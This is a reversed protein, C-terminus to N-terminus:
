VTLDKSEVIEQYVPNTETEPLDAVLALGRKAVAKRVAAALATRDALHAVLELVLKGVVVM